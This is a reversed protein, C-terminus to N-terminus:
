GRRCDLRASRSARREFRCSTPPSSRARPAVARRPSTIGAYLSPAITDADGQSHRFYAVARRADDYANVMLTYARQRTVASAAVTANGAALIGRAVLASAAAFLVSRLATGAQVLEGLTQPPASAATYIGHAHSLAQPLVLFAYQLGSLPDRYIPVSKVVPDGSDALAYHLLDRCSANAAHVERRQVQEARPRPPRRARRAQSGGGAAARIRGPAFAIRDTRGDGTGRATHL